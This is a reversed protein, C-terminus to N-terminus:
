VTITCDGQRYKGHDYKGMKCAKADSTLIKKTKYQISLAADKKNQNTATIVIPDHLQSSISIPGGLNGDGSFGVVLGGCRIIAVIDFNTNKGDDKKNYQYLHIQIDGTPINTPPPGSFILRHNQNGVAKVQPGTMYAWNQFGGDGELIFIGAHVGYVDYKFKGLVTHTATNQHSWDKGEVGQGYFAHKDDTVVVNWGPHAQVFAAVTRKTFEGRQQASKKEMAGVVNFVKSLVNLFATVVELATGLVEGVIPIGEVEVGVQATVKAVDGTVKGATKMGGGPTNVSSSSQGKPAGKEGKGGGGKRKVIKMTGEEVQTAVRSQITVGGGTLRLAVDKDIGFFHDSNDNFDSAGAFDNEPLYDASLGISDSVIQWVRGTSPLHSDDVGPNRVLRVDVVPRTPLPGATVIVAISFLLLSGYFSKM